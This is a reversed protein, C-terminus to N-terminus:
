NIRGKLVAFPNPKEGSELVAETCRTDHLPSIPMAVILEDEILEVLDMERSAELWDIEDDGDDEPEADGVIYNFTLSQKFPMDVLCRQCTVPLTAVISLHLSPLHLKDRYGQLEFHVDEHTHPPPALMELLRECQKIKLKGKLKEQKQAFELNNIFIPKM